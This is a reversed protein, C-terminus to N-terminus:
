KADRRRRLMLLGGVALMGLSAPEPVETQTFRVNDVDTEAGQSNATTIVAVRLNQGANASLLAAYGPSSSDFTVSYDAFSGKAITAANVTTEALLTSTAYDTGGARIQISTTENIDDNRAGLAMTLTYSAGSTLTASTEQAVGYDPRYLALVNVGDPIGTIPFTSSLPAYVLAYGTAGQMTEWQTVNNTTSGSAEFSYNNVTVPVTSAGAVGAVSLVLSSVFLNCVKM